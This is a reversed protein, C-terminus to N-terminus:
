YEVEKKTKNILEGRGRPRAYSNGGGTFLLWLDERRPHGGGEKKLVFCGKKGDGPTGKGYCKEEV